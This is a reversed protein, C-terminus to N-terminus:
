GGLLLTEASRLSQRWKHQFSFEEALLSIEHPAVDPWIADLSRIKKQLADIRANIRGLETAIEKQLSASESRAVAAALPSLACKESIQGARRALAGARAFQEFDPAFHEPTFDAPFTLDLLHRLRLPPSSLIGRAQNLRALPLSDGGLKDPHRTVALEHYRSQIADPDLWPRRGIGFEAFADTV